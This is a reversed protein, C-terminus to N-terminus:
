NVSVRALPVAKNQELDPRLEDCLQGDADTVMTPEFYSQFRDPLSFLPKYLPGIPESGTVYTRPESKKGRKFLTGHNHALAPLCLLASNGVASIMQPITLKKRYHRYFNVAHKAVQRKYGRLTPMDRLFQVVEEVSDKPKLVLTNGDMDRLKTNPLFLGEDLCEYFYPTRLIPITLNMFAPLPIEPTRTIFDIEDHIEALSRKTTDFIVGYQFVVGNDLCNRITQVQPLILNQKKRFRTLQEADFSEVGSFLALCGSERALRLNEEKAFFDNTVLASWGGFAKKKWYTKLLDLKAHFFDRDNGYFNNDVFLICTRRGVAEIQRALHDIDYVSYKNGEGTLTCFSCKFNCNRSSEVYGIFGMWNILDFRPDMAPSVYAQGFVERVVDQLEEVDGICVYDFFERSREPLARIAQGGAVMVAKPNKTRFYASMHRMRDFATTMGTIVVMDPWSMLKEDEFPGSHLESYLKLEAHQPAFAGALYAPGVAQPIFHPRGKFRRTEDLYCNIILVRIKRTM